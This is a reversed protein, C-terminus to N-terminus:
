PYSHYTVEELQPSRSLDTPNTGPLGEPISSGLSDFLETWFQPMSGDAARFNMPKSSFIHEGSDTLYSEYVLESCYMAGNDPLYYWDYPQGIFTKAREVAKIALSEASRLRMISYKAKEESPNWLGRTVGESDAQILFLSDNRVEVIAVHVFDVGDDATSNIIAENHGSKDAAKFFVLDGSQPQSPYILYKERLHLYDELAPQWSAKIQAALESINVDAQLFTNEIAAKVKDTGMLLNFFRGGNTFFKSKDPFAAYAELLYELNVEESWIEEVPKDTLSVGYCERGLLPPNKAGEMSRPTFVTAPGCSFEADKLEPAGFIEFPHETGRGLSINTGEFFCTSAYLYVAQMTKLNPSPAVALDYHTDHTYNSCPIVKLNCHGKIWGEGNIMLALEGMTLGYVTPIPLAGVGSEFGHELVPGDVYFGNPNPRDLIVVQKNSAACDEMLAMLTIYYTYYRLGVDQIDVVLVEFASLEESSLHKKKGYLSIVPLGTRSDIEDNVSEGADATGRFGHEPSVLLRLDVDHSILFDAIHINRDGVIGSHNSFLAVSRGKLMHLYEDAREDGLVVTREQAEAHCFFCSLVLIFGLIRNM